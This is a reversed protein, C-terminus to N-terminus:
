AVNLSKGDGKVCSNIEVLGENGFGWATTHVQVTKSFKQTYFLSGGGM